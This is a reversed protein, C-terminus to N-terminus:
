LKAKLQGLLDAHVQANVERKLIQEAGAIALVAVQDRLANKARAMEQEADVKAQALIRAREAEADKKAAEVIAAAQKEAEAARAAGSARADAELKAIHRQAEDLSRNGREAAALGDAIKKQRDELSKILPPWIYKMTVWAGIFFVVLQVFLTANINM